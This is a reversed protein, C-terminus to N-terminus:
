RHVGRALEADAASAERLEDLFEALDLSLLMEVLAPDFQTGSCRRVEVMVAQLPMASRYTRSSTMADFSDALGVILAEVPIESGALGKPYGRGDPREHHHLVAPVIDEIQRIGGLIGAGVEPHRKVTAYEEDTLRGTKLLVTEPIGIKGVDHLLGALYLRGVRYADFGSLEALKRSALAVRRAHGCTYRDKAEISATLAHLMGMLLDQLDEYLHYSEVFVAAQSTISSILKQDISDFEGALKNIGLLVGKFNDASMLPVAILTRIRGAKDGLHAAHTAFENDVMAKGSAALRPSLYHGVIHELQERTVPLDGAYVLQDAPESPERRNLWVATAELHIVGMLERCIGDFFETSSRTVKMSGSVRYLMSLEEYTNALHASLTALEAEAVTKAQEDEILWELVAGICAADSGDHVAAQRCLEAMAQGDVHAMDCARAFQESDPTQRTPFCAVMTAILRRRQRIPLAIM